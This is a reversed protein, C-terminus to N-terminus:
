QISYSEFIVKILHGMSCLISYVLFEIFIGKGYDEKLMGKKNVSIDVSLIESRREFHFTEKGLVLRQSARM